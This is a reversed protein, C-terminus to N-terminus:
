APLDLPAAPPADPLFRSPGAKGLWQDLSKFALIELWFIWRGLQARRQQKLIAILNRAYSAFMPWQAAVAGSSAKSFYGKLFADACEEPTMIKPWRLGSQSFINYVFWSLDFFPTGFTARGGFLRTMSWDLVVLQHSEQSICLNHLNYDGHIFVPETGHFTLEVPLEAQLEVPLRLKRHVVALIEGAQWAVIPALDPMCLAIQLPVLCPVKEFVLTGTDPAYDVVRPVSFGGIDLAIQRAAVSKTYEKLALDPRQVKCFHEGEFYKLSQHKQMEGTLPLGGSAWM